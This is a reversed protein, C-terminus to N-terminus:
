RGQDWDTFAREYIAAIDQVSLIRASRGLLRQEKHAEVAWVPIRSRDTVGAEELCVPLDVSRMLHRIAALARDAAERPALGAV